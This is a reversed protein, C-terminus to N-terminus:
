HFSIKKTYNMTTAIFIKGGQRVSLPINGMAIETKKWLRKVGNRLCALFEADKKGGAMRASAGWLM